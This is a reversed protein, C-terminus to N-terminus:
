KKLCEEKVLTQVIDEIQDHLASSDIQPTSHEEKGYLLNRPNIATFITVTAIVTLFVGILILFGIWKHEESFGALGLFLGLVSETIFLALFFLRPTHSGVALAPGPLCQTTKREYKLPM